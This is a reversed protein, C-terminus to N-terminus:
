ATETTAQTWHKAFLENQQAVHRKLVVDGSVGLAQAREMEEGQQTSLETLAKDFAATRQQCNRKYAVVRRSVNVLFMLAFALIGCALILELTSFTNM